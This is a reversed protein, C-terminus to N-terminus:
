TRYIYYTTDGIDISQEHVDYSSLSHGRGDMRADSKWRERDFYSEMAPPIELCDDIYSELYEDWLFDAENDTVVLYYHNSGIQLQCDDYSSVTIDIPECEYHVALALVRPDEELVEEPDLEYEKIMEVVAPDFNEELNM